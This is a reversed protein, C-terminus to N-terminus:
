EVALKGKAVTEAWIAAEAKASQAFQAPTEGGPLFGLEDLKKVVAADKLAACCRTTSRM